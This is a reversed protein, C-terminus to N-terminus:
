RTPWTHSRPRQAIQPLFPLTAIWSLPGMAWRLRGISIQLLARVVAPDFQSGACRLLEERAAAPSMAKKYPREATMVEYSDAVAVIRAGLHIEAGALGHPYGSGDWQEHHQPIAQAWEGLWNRLPGLFRLGAEPHARLREWEDDTPKGPKNLIEAPVALKGIDHLLSAWRLRDAQERRLGMEDAIMDAYVRVREAHGRTHRDHIHLAAVLELIAAAAQAPEDTRGAARAKEIREQLTRTSNVQRAVRYRSPAKDPFLMSMRLLTALPLLRQALREATWLMASSTVLVLVWGGAREGASTPDPLLRNVVIAVAFSAMVPVLFAIAQVASAQLPRGEWRSGRTAGHGDSMQSSWTVPPAPQQNGRM